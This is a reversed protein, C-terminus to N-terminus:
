DLYTMRTPQRLYCDWHDLRYRIYHALLDYQLLDHAWPAATMTAYHHQPVVSSPAVLEFDFSSCIHNRM